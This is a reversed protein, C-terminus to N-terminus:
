QSCTSEIILNDFRQFASVAGSGGSFALVGGKFSFNPLDADLVAAGDVSITVQRGIIRVNVDHWYNDALTPYNSWTVGEEDSFDNM